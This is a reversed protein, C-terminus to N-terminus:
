PVGAVQTCTNHDTLNYGNVSDVRTAGAAEGCNWWAALSTLLTGSLNSYQVGHGNNYLTTIEAGSLPKKWFGVSCLAADATQTGLNRAGFNVDATTTSPAGGLPSTNFAGNNVSIKITPGSSDYINVVFYWVGTSAAGFTTASVGTMAGGQLVLFNFNTGAQRYACWWDGNTAGGNFKTVTNQITAVTDLNVWYCISFSQAAQLDSVSARSLYQTSASAFHVAQTTKSAPGGSAKRYRRDLNKGSLGMPLCQAREIRRGPLILSPLPPRWVERPSIAPQM